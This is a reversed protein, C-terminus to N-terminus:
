QSEELGKCALQRTIKISTHVGTIQGLRTRASALKAATSKGSLYAPASPKRGERIGLYLIVAAGLAFSIVIAVIIFLTTM